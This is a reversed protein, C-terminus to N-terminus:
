KEIYLKFKVLRSQGPIEAIVWYYDNVKNIVEYIYKDGKRSFEKREFNNSEIFELEFKNEDVWTYKLKSQTQDTFTEVWYNNKVEVNTREGDYEFYYLSKSQKLIELDRKTVLVQPRQDLTIWDDQNLNDIKTLFSSFSECRKQFRILMADLAEKNKIKATSIYSYIINENLYKVRLSDSLNQTKSFKLCADDIIKDMKDGESQAFLTKCFFLFVLFFSNKLQVKM